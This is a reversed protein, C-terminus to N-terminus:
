KITLQINTLARTTVKGPYVKSLGTVKLIDTVPISREQRDETIGKSYLM